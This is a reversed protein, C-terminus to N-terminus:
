EFRSVLRTIFNGITMNFTSNLTTLDKEITISKIRRMIQNFMNLKIFNINIVDSLYLERSINLNGLTHIPTM